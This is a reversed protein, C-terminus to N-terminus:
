SGTPCSRAPTAGSCRSRRAHRLLGRRARAGPRERARRPGPHRRQRHRLRRRRRHPSSTACRCRASPPSTSRPADLNPTDGPHLDAWALTPLSLVLVRGGPAAEAAAAAPAPPSSCSRRAVLWSRRSRAAAEHAAWRRARPRRAGRGPCRARAAAAGGLYLPRRRRRDRRRRALTVLRGDPAWAEMAVWALAGVAARGAGRPAAPRSALVPGVHPRLRLALWSRRRPPVGALPGARAALRDAGDVSAAPRSWRRRRRALASGLSALAPTRSDGLAYAARTLLLFGGYVPIGVALGLLAAGLLTPGTARPRRASPSSGCSRARCPSSAPPWRSRRRRGHRRRGLADAGRLGAADGAASRGRGAAPARRHPDAPRPDRLARPVRGHRAPLRRRRGARRRGVILAAALLIGTGSHQLAAWGSLRLLRRVDRDHSPAGCGSGSGSGPRAAARHGPRRRLRGRGLTGGLALCLREGTTSTSARTAARGDVPVAVLAVVLVVTNGIPAIAPSRSRGSPTCCPPPWRASPTSSCRRSSSGCSSPPWSRSSGRRDGSRGGRRHARAALQPAFSSASCRCWASARGARDVARRRGGGRGAPRRRPRAPRRLDPRARGVARRRRAARVARELRQQVGPLHQRPLDHRARRRDRGHPPRRLRAVGRRGRGHRGGVADPEHRRRGAGDTVAADLAAPRRRCGDGYGFHGVAATPSPTSRSCPAGLQGEPRDADDVLAISTACSTPLDGRRAGRGPGPAEPASSTSTPSSRTWSPRRRVADVVVPVVPALAAEARRRRHRCCRAPAPAPWTPSTPPTTTSPTSPSSARGRDAADLVDTSPARETATTADDSSSRGLWSPPWGGRWAPWRRM